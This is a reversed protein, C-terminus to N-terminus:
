NKWVTLYFVHLGAAGVAALQLFFVTVSVNYLGDACPNLLWVTAICTSVLSLMFASMVTIAATRYPKKVEPNTGPEFASVGSIVLGLFVLVLGGIGASAGLIALGISSQEVM